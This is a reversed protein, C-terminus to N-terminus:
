PEGAAENRPRAAIRRVSRLGARPEQALPRSALTSPSLWLGDGIQSKMGRWPRTTRWCSESTGRSMVCKTSEAYQDVFEDVQAQMGLATDEVVAARDRESVFGKELRECRHKTRARIDDLVAAASSRCCTVAAEQEAVAQARPDALEIKWLGVSHEEDHRARVLEEQVRAQRSASSGEASVLERHAEERLAVAFVECHERAHQEVRCAGENFRGWSFDSVETHAPVDEQKEATLHARYGNFEERMTQRLAWDRQEFAANGQTVLWAINAAVAELASSVEARNAGVMQWTRDAMNRECELLRSGFYQEASAEFTQKFRWAQVRLRGEGGPCRHHRRARSNSGHLRRLRGRIRALSVRVDQQSTPVPADDDPLAPLHFAPVMLGSGMGNVAM